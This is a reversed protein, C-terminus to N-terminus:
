RRRARENEIELTRWLTDIAWATVEGAAVGDLGLDDRLRQWASASILHTLVGGAARLREPPLDPLVNALVEQMVTARKSRAKTRVRGGLGAQLQAAVLAGHQAYLPFLQKVLTVLGERSRPYEFAVAKHLRRSLADLLDERRPFHRYITRVAVGSRRSLEFYSFDFAGHESLQVVLADLIVNKTTEVLKDRLLRSGPARKRVM